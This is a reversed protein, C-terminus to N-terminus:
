AALLTAVIGVIAVLLVGPVAYRLWRSVSVGAATLMALVAGNTPILFDSLGMGTQLAFVAADRSAGALDALPAMIPMTLAAQGSNSPVAIHLLAQAPIMLLPAVAPPASQLPVSLGYIITDLIKGDQMVVSISRAIGIYLAAPLMSQMGKLLADVTDGLSLRSVLGLAFGVVLFLGSLEHFGWDHRLVGYVYPPFPLMAITLLLYDRSTAVQSALPADRTTADPLDAADTARAKADRRMGIILWVAWVACAAVLAGFRLGGQSLAPLGAFRLAIGSLFPNTPGFASGIGAAGVSMGLATLPGYGLGRALLLLPPILAVIEEQMNELAGFTAFALAVGLVVLQPHRSRGILSGVLRALVGMADLLAFTAGSFLVVLIVDAGSAIGRPVAILAQFPSLPASAVVVFTGPVVTERGTAANVTRQFAGAPIIWTFIAAVAVAGLLLIFPHPLRLRLRVANM